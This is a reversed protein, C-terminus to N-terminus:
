ARATGRSWHADLFRGIRAVASDSADLVRAHMQFDHWLGQEVELRIDAGMARARDVLRESDSLLIEDSGVQVLTPPLGHLDAFLPSVRPDSAALSGRYDRGASLAWTETLMPDADRQTRHSDGSLTQDTWPSILLLAAPAPLQEDRLALALCLALGGGASDGGIAINAPRFRDLLARYSALADQLAAPYPHEPALRYDPAFVSCRAAGALHTTISRHSSPSGLTYGGGHLFLLVRREDGDAHRAWEGSVGCVGTELTAGRARLTSAAIMRLWRRQFPVSQIRGIVNKFLLRLTGRLMFKLIAQM